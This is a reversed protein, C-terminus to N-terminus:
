FTILWDLQVDIRTGDIDTPQLVLGISDDNPQFTVRNFLASDSFMLGAEHVVTVPGFQAEPFNDGNILKKFLVQTGPTQVTYGVAGALQAPNEVELETPSLVERVGLVFDEGSLVVTVTDNDNVGAAVFDEGADALTSITGATLTGPTGILASVKVVEDPFEFSDIDFTGGPDGSLTRVEHVLAVDSRDAPFQSKVVVGGVIADGVQVRDVFASTTGALLKALQFRGVNVVLNNGQWLREVDVGMAVLRERAAPSLADGPEIERGDRTAVHRVSVLGRIGRELREGVSMQRTTM